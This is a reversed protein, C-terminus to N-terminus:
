DEDARNADDELGPADPTRLPRLNERPAFAIFTHRGLVNGNLQKLPSLRVFDEDRIEHGEARLQTVAADIHRTTWLVVANLMLSLSGLRGYYVGDVSRAPEPTRVWVRYDAAEASGDERDRHSPM